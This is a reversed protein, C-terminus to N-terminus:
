CRTHALPGRNSGSRGHRGTHPRAQRNQGDLIKVAVRVLDNIPCDPPQHIDPQGHIGHREALRHRPAPVQFPDPTDLEQSFQGTVDWMGGVSEIVGIDYDLLGSSTAYDLFGRGDQTVGVRILERGLL